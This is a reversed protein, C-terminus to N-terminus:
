CKFLSSFLNSVKHNPTREVLSINDAFMAQKFILLCVSIVLRTLIFLHRYIVKLINVVHFIQFQNRVINGIEHIM